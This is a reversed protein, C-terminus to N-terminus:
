LPEWSPFRKKGFGKSIKFAQRQFINILYLESSTKDETNYILHVSNPAWFPNEKNGPGRTLQWEEDTEFDYIWIQRVGDITASYALKSGDPSWSPTVNHRNRKTVLIAQPRKKEGAEPVKIIYIRPTGDKDSVFAMQKGDPSFTPSAQTARPYSFIQKPKGLSVGGETFFQIFLDPRGAADCIFALKNAQFSIAPLLQNGRLSILPTSYKSFLTSRYIKPQGLKYSVYLFNQPREDTACPIFLPHVCYSNEFTIQQANAGDYDCIWVDSLWKPGKPNPNPKRITFLLHKAAIGKKNLFKELVADTIYHIKKRDKDLIGELKVNYCRWVEKTEQSWVQLLFDSKQVLVKIVYGVNKEKWFDHDFATQDKKELLIDKQQESKLVHFYGNTHFDFYLVDRLENLYSKNFEAEDDYVPSLYVPTLPNLTSLGVEIEDEAFLSLSVFLWFFLSTKVKM